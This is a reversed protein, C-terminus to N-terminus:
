HGGRVHIGSAGMYSLIHAMKVPLALRSAGTELNWFNLRTLSLYEEAIKIVDEERLKKEDLEYVRLIVPKACGEGRPKSSIVLIEHALRDLHRLKYLYFHTGQLPKQVSRDDVKFVRTPVSKIVSIYELKLEESPKLELEKKVNKFSRLCGDLEDKTRPPGDRLIVIRKMSNERAKEVMKRFVEYYNKETITESTLTLIRADMLKGYPDFMIFAAGETAEKRSIDLGVYMTEGRGDAPSDLVWTLPGTPNGESIKRQILFEAYIGACINALLGSDKERRIREITNTEVLQTHYGMGSAERKASTYFEEREKSPIIITMLFDKESCQKAHEKITKELSNLSKAPNKPDYTYSIKKVGKISGLNLENFKNKLMEVFNTEVFDKLNPDSPYILMLNLEQKGAYPHCKERDFAFLPSHPSSIDKGDKKYTLQVTMKAIDKIIKIDERFYFNPKLYADGDKVKFVEFKVNKYGLKDMLSEIEEKVNELLKSIEKFRTHFPDVKGRGALRLVSPPYCYEGKSTKIIFVPYENEDVEVGRERWYEHLPKGKIKKESVFCDEINVVEGQIYLGRLWTFVTKKIYEDHSLEYAREKLENDERLKRFEKIGLQERIRGAISPSPRLYDLFLILHGDHDLITRKKVAIDEKASVYVGKVPRFGAKKLVVSILADLFNETGSYSPISEGLPMPKEQIMHEPIKELISNPNDAYIEAKVVEKAIPYLEYTCIEGREILQCAIGHLMRKAAGYSCKLEVESCKLPKLDLRETSKLCSLEYVM